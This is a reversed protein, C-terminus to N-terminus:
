LNYGAKLQASPNGKAITADKCSGLKKCATCSEKHWKWAYAQCERNCYHATGCSCSHSPNAKSCADCRTPPSLKREADRLEEPVTVNADWELAEKLMMGVVRWSTGKQQAPLVSKEIVLEAMKSCVNCVFEDNQQILAKAKTWSAIVQSEELNGSTVWQQIRERNASNIFKLSRKDKLLDSLTSVGSAAIQMEDRLQAPDISVGKLATSLSKLLSLQVAAGFLSQNAKVQRKFGGIERFSPHSLFSPGLCDARLGRSRLELISEMALTMSEELNEHRGLVILTMCRLWAFEQKPYQNTAVSLYEDFRELAAELKERVGHGTGQGESRLLISEPTAQFRLIIDTAQNLQFLGTLGKLYSVESASRKNGMAKTCIEVAKEDDKNSSCQSLEREVQQISREQSQLDELGRQAYTLMKEVDKRGFENHTFKMPHNHKLQYEVLSTVTKVWKIEEECPVDRLPNFLSCCYQLRPIPDDPFEGILSDACSQALDFNSVYTSDGVLTYLMVFREDPKFASQPVRLLSSLAYAAETCHGVSMLEEACSLTRKVLKSQSRKQLISKRRSPGAVARAADYSMKLSEARDPGFLFTCLEISNWMFYDGVLRGVTGANVDESRIKYAETHYIDAGALVLARACFFHGNELASYLFSSGKVFQCNPNFGRLLLVELFGIMADRPLGEWPSICTYLPQLVKPNENEENYNLDFRPSDLLLRLCRLLAGMCKEREQLDNAKERQIRAARFLLHNLPTDNDGTDDVSNPDAGAKLLAAVAQDVGFSCAMHLPTRGAWTAAHLDAGADLLLQIARTSIDKRTTASHLPTLGKSDLAHVNAGAELLFQVTKTSIGAYSCAVHLPTFGHETKTNIKIQFIRKSRTSKRLDDLHDKVQDAEGKLVVNHLKTVRGAGM